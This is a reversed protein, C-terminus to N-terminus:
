GRSQKPTRLDPAKSTIDALARSNEQMLFNMPVPVDSIINSFGIVYEASIIDGQEIDDTSFKELRAGSM